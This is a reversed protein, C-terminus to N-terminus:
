VKSVSSNELDDLSLGKLDDYNYHRVSPDRALYKKSADLYREPNENETLVFKKLRFPKSEGTYQEIVKRLSACWHAGSRLQGIISGADLSSTKFEFLYCFIQRKQYQFVIFDCKKSWEKGNDDLFNFLPGEVGDLKLAFAKGKFPLKVTRTSSRTKGPKFYKERLVIEEDVGYYVLYHDSLYAFLHDFYSSAELTM